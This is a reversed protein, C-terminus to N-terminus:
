SNFKIKKIRIKRLAIYGLPLIIVSFLAFKGTIVGASHQDSDVTERGTDPAKAAAVVVGGSNHSNNVGDRNDNPKQENGNGSHSDTDNGNNGNNDNNDNNDTNDTNDSDSNDNNNPETSDDAKDVEFEASATGNDWVLTAMHTGESLVSINMNGLTIKTSGSSLDYFTSSVVEGDIQLERFRWVDGSGYLTLVDDPGLSSDINALAYYRPSATLAQQLSYRQNGYRESYLEIYYIDDDLPHFIIKKTAWDFAIVSQDYHLKTGPYYKDKRYADYLAEPINIAVSTFDNSKEAYLVTAPEAVSCYGMLYCYDSLAETDAVPSSISLRVNDNSAANLYKTGFLGHITIPNDALIGEFGKELFLWSVATIHNGTLNASYVSPSLYNLDESSLSDHSLDVKGYPIQSLITTPDDDEFSCNSLDLEYIFPFISELESIDTLYHNSLDLYRVVDQYTNLLSLTQTSDNASYLMKKLSRSEKLANYLNRDAIHIDETVTSLDTTAGSVGFTNYGVLYDEYSIYATQTSYDIEGDATTGYNSNLAIFAGDRLPQSSGAFNEKAYSDDWGIISIAHDAIRVPHLNSGDYYGNRTLDSNSSEYTYWEDTEENVLWGTSGFTVAYLSGNAMIHRKITEIEDSTYQDGDASYNVINTVFASPKLEYLYDYDDETYPYYAYMLGDAEYTKNSYPVESELVEGFGKDNYNYMYDIFSSATSSVYTLDLSGGFDKSLMYIPHFRSLDIANEGHLELYTEVARTTAFSWCSGWPWQYYDGFHVHEDLRYRTPLDGEYLAVQDKNDQTIAQGQAIIQAGLGLIIPITLLWFYRSKNYSIFKKKMIQYSRIIINKNYCVKNIFSVHKILHFNKM